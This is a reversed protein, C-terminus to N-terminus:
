SAPIDSLELVEHAGLTVAAESLRQSVGNWRLKAGTSELAAKFALLLQVGTTDIAEVGGGDVCVVGAGGLRPELTERMEQINAICLNPELKLVEVSSDDAGSEGQPDQMVQENM